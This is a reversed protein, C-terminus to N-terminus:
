NIKVVNKHHAVLQVEAQFDPVSLCPLQTTQRLNCHNEWSITKSGIHTNPQKQSGPRLSMFREKGRVM